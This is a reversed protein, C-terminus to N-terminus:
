EVYQKPRDRLLKHVENSNLKKEFEEMFIDCLTEYNAVTVTELLLKATRRMKNSAIVYKHKQKLGYAEANEDFNNLSQRIPISVGDNDPVVKSFKDVTVKKRNNQEISQTLAKILENFDSNKM